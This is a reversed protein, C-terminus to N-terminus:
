QINVIVMNTKRGDVTLVVGVEGRGALSRPLPGINAQDLGIYEAQKAAGLVPTSVGGVTAGLGSANSFGRIGTGYLILYIQDTAAGLDIPVSVLQQAAASYEFVPVVTQAGGADVRIAAMLGVGQGSANASFVGPAVPAVPINSSITGGGQGRITVTAEGIATAPPIQYNVQEPSVFFLPSDRSTGASDTVEVTTGALTTPLPVEEAVATDAALNQGFASVIAAPAVPGRRFSAANTIWDAFAWANAAGPTPTDFGAWNDVGDPSRGHSIDPQQAGYAISDILTAGDVHYLGIEEGDAALQFRAHTPGQSAENDTWFLLYGGGEITVGQPVQWRTPNAIDDTLYMGSMDVATAGPNYIEVWDEFAGPDDPDEVASENDAMFENIHLEVASLPPPAPTVM